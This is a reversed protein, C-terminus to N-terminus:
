DAVGKDGRGEVTGINWSVLCRAHEPPVQRWPLRKMTQFARAVKRAWCYWRYENTEVRLDAGSRRHPGYSPERAVLALM